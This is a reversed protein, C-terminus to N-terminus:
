LGENKAAWFQNKLTRLESQIVRVNQSGKLRQIELDKKKGQLNIIERGLLLMEQKVIYLASIAKQLEKEKEDQKLSIEHSSM